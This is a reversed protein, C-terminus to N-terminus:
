ITQSSSLWHFTDGTGPRKQSLRWKRTKRYMEQVIFMNSFLLYIYKIHLKQFRFLELQGEDLYKGM